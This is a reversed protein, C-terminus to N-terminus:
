ERNVEHLLPTVRAVATDQGRRVDKWPYWMASGFKDSGRSL